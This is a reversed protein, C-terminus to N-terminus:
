QLILFIVQMFVTIIIAVNFRACVTHRPPEEYGTPLLLTYAVGERKGTADLHLEPFM